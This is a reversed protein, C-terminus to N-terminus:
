RLSPPILYRKLHLTGGGPPLSRYRGGEKIVLLKVKMIM